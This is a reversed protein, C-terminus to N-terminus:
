PRAVYLPFVSLLQHTSELFLFLSSSFSDRGQIRTRGSLRPEKTQTPPDTSTSTATGSVPAHTPAPLTRRQGRTRLRVPGSPYAGRPLSHSPGEVTQEKMTTMTWPETQRIAQSLRTALYPLAPNSAPTGFSIPESTDQETCPRTTLRSAGRAVLRIRARHRTPTPSPSPGSGEGRGSGGIGRREGPIYAGVLSM